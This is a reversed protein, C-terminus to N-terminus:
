NRIGFNLTAFDSTVKGESFIGHTAYVM